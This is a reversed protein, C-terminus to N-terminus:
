LAAHVHQHRHRRSFGFSWDDGVLDGLLIGYNRLGHTWTNITPNEPLGVDPAVREGILFHSEHGGSVELLQALRVLNRTRSNPYMAFPLFLIKLSAAGEVSLLWVCLLVTVLVM